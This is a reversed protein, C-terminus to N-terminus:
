GPNDSLGLTIVFNKKLLLPLCFLSGTFIICCSDYEVLWQQNRLDFCSVLWPISAAEIFQFLCHSLNEEIAELLFAARSIGKNQGLFVWNWSRVGLVRLYYICIIKHWQTQQYNTVPKNTIKKYNTVAVM